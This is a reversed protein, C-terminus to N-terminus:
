MDPATSDGFILSHTTSIRSPVSGANLFRFCFYPKHHSIDAANRVFTASIQSPERRTSRRRYLGNKVAQRAQGQSELEQRLIEAGAGPQRYSWLKSRTLWRRMRSANFTNECNWWRVFAAGCPRGSALILIGLGFAPILLIGVILALRPAVSLLFPLAPVDTAFNKGGPAEFAILTAPAGNIPM